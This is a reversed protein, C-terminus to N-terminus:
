PSTTTSTTSTDGSSSPTTTTGSSPSSSSSSSNSSTSPSSASSSTGSPSTKVPAVATTLKVLEIVYRSGDSKNALTVKKGKALKITQDGTTFSGGFIGVRVTKEGLAVLKFLPNASPFGDGVFVTQKRGNMRVIAANPPTQATFTMTGSAAPQSASAKTAKPKKRACIFAETQSNVVVSCNSPVSSKPKATPTTAAPKSSTTSSGSTATSLLAHFPDKLPLRAFDTLATSPATALTGASAGGTTAPTSGATGTTSSPTTAAAAAPPTSANPPSMQKLLKPVQIVLVILLVALLGGAIKKNRKDKLQAATIRRKRM